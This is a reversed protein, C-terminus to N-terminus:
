NSDSEKAEEAEKSERGNIEENAAKTVYKKGLVQNLRGMLWDFDPVQKKNYLRYNIQERFQNDKSKAEEILENITM